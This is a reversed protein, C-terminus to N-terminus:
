LRLSVKPEKGARLRSINERHSYTVAVGIFFGLIRFAFHEQTFFFYTYAAWAFIVNTLSMFRTMILFAAWAIFMVLFKELGMLVMISGILTSVGKGGKRGLWAPFMNGLTLGVVASLVIWSSEEGQFMRASLLTLLIARALDALVVPIGYRWGGLVRVVNTAGASGSGHDRIDFDRGRVLKAFLYGTPIGGILYCVAGAMFMFVLIMDLPM